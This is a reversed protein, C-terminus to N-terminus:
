DEPARFLDHCNKCSEGLGKLATRIAPVDGSRASEDFRNAAAEFASARQRFTEPDAWIEGKARTKLGTEAGSGEPFWTLLEPGYRAINASHEQITPLSPSSSKLEAGIAKMAKSMEKYHSQRAKMVEAHDSATGSGEAVNNAAETQPSESSCAAVAILATASALLIATRKM